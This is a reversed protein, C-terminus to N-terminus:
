VSNQRQVPQASPHHRVKEETDPPAAPGPRAGSLAALVADRPGDMVIRGNDVVVIRQVLELVAPRHTVVVLTSGPTLADRLQRLFALESQADMSSTPEDMLLVQPRHVLARALAVLQRQGGSLLGGMEGVGLDWGQPHASVLRDLGTLRAVEALRGAHMDSRGMTVNDRLTGNFLRPEQGVFGMRARFEAPDIQRLDIGDIEVAGESPLYLGALLRLITSKGSGIRGLVAVREGPELVLNVAKLVKPANGEVGKPLPYAFGVEALRLRGKGQGGQGAREGMPVYNRKADREQPKRMLEDISLMCARAGQYRTALGVLSSLPALARGAFMVAGVLAGASLQGDQILYVGWVLMTLTIAQQATMTINNSLATASRARLNSEAAVATSAEYRRIFRSQAGSTKLDELGEVAEVLTGQLDAYESLHTGVAKRIRSQLLLTLGILLPVAVLLVWGLPGAIVFTMAIFLLVFPLDTLAGLVASSFFDRVVEIQGLYHAYSGASEPRHEMRVGLTQRFLRSGIILDAKRGALDILHSRLQRAFLDFALAIFAGVALTWLTTTAAHPIVKDFIVATVLGTVLLLVNSLLAAVMAARYYPMFRRLTGWLWHESGPALLEDASRGSAGEERPTVVMVFGSYAASLEKATAAAPQGQGDPFVVEYRPENGDSELRRTLVCADGEGLLLIAPLLLPNIDAISKAMLGANYGGDRLLRLAQDPMLPGDIAAGARLSEASRPRGHHKSLWVICQLLADGAAAEAPAAAAAIVEDVRPPEFAPAVALPSRAGRPRAAGPSFFADDDRSL